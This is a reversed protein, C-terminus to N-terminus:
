GGKQLSAGKRTFWRIAISVIFQGAFWVFVVPFLLDDFVNSDVIIGYIVLLVLTFVAAYAFKKRFDRLDAALQFLLPAHKPQYNSM